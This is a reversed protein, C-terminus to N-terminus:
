FSRFITELLRSGEFVGSVRSSRLGPVKIELFKKRSVEFVKDRCVRVGQNRFVEFDEPKQCRKCPVKSFV